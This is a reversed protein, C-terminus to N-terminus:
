EGVADDILLDVIGDIQDVVASVVVELDQGNPLSIPFAPSGDANTIMRPPISSEYAVFRSREAMFLKFEKSNEDAQGQLQLWIPSFGYDNWLSHHVSLGLRIDKTRFYRTYRDWSNAARFGSTDYRKEKVGKDIAERVIAVLQGVLRPVAPGLDESRFPVFGVDQLQDCLGSLQEIDHTTRLDGAITTAESMAQLLGQWTIMTLISDDESRAIFGDLDQYHIASNHHAARGLVEPWLSSRRSEPVIFCLSSRKTGSLRDLYGNPQQETLGAWFKAEILVIEVGHEDVGAIDPRTSDESKQSRYWAVRPSDKSVAFAHDTLVNRAVPSNRLIHTLGAVVINEPKDRFLGSLSELLTRNQLGVDGEHDM